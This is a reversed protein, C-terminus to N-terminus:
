EHSAVRSSYGSPKGKEGRLQRIYAAVREPLYPADRNEEIVRVIGSGVVAAEAWRGVEEVDEPRAIGFGVAIPLPTVDRIREVLRKAESAVGDSSGTVGLHSIAYLFGRGLAAAKALREDSTTPSVLLIMDLGHRGLAAHMERAEEIPLDLTLVGDVGTAAARAAFTEIGLRLVPNLYTFLVVPARLSPRVAAVLDLTSALTSGAALARACARQIVPGDAVPDSFPVGLELVDCGAEDLARVIRASTALDPDGATVYSVLGTAGAARLHEFAAAIASV